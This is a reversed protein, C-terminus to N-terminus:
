GRLTHLEEAIVQDILYADIGIKVDLRRAKEHLENELAPLLFHSFVLFTKEKKETPTQLALQYMTEKMELLLKRMEFVSPIEKKIENLRQRKEALKEESSSLDKDRIFVKERRLQNLERQLKEVEIELPIRQEKSVKQMCKSLIRLATKPMVADEGFAEKTKLVLTKLTESQLIIEPAIKLLTQHLAFITEENNPEDIKIHRFRHIFSPYSQALQKFDSETTIGIVHPFFDKERDFMAKLQDCLFNVGNPQCALHIQDFVFVIEDRHGELADSFFSLISSSKPVWETYSLLDATNVHLVQSKRFEPYDGRGFASVLAKLIETKGIGDKGVLLVQLHDSKTSHLADVIEDIIESKVRKIQLAGNLYKETLNEVKPLYSPIPRWLPYSLSLGVLSLFVACIAAGGYGPGLVPIFTATLTSFLTSLLVMKQGKLEVDYDGVVPKFFDTLGLGRLFSELSVFFSHILCALFGRGQTKVPEQVLSYYWAAEKALNEMEPLVGKFDSKNSRLAEELFKLSLPKVLREIAANVEKRGKSSKVVSSVMQEIQHFIPSTEPTALRNVGIPLPNQFPSHNQISSVM